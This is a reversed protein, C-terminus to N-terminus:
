DKFGLTMERKGPPGPVNEVRFGAKALNRKFQGQACYTTLIGGKRTVTFLKEFIEQTWMDPQKNPAFADFYILNYKDVSGHALIGEKLMEIELLSSLGSPNKMAFSWNEKESDDQGNNHIYQVLLDQGIPFPELGTYTVRKSKNSNLFNITLLLNLGTGVGVELIDIENDEILGLGNKIYVHESEQRAGHISHYTENLESNHITYSGDHTPKLSLNSM